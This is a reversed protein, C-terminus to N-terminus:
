FSKTSISQDLKVTWERVIGEAEELSDLHRQIFGLIAPQDEEQLYKENDEYQIYLDEKSRSLANLVIALQDELEKNHM